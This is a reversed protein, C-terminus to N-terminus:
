RFLAAYASLLPEAYLAALLGGLALFSGFPLPTAADARRTGLLVVAYASASLIGAFLALLAPLFGLLAAIMALMKVDGLGMGERGRLARYAFRILLLLGAAAIVATVRGLILHEPGTLFVNGHDAAAAGPSTLQVHREPLLVQEEAPGLFVGRVAVLLLGAFIGSFTFADPLLHTQWDMVMLGILLFGALALAVAQLIAAPVSPPPTMDAYHAQNLTLYLRVAVAAFWLATAGEVAPYRWSIQGGCDRCRARLVIWSLVPLNDYWRIPELCRPCHSRPGAISRHHPLRSICVNLFSGLLLGLLLGAGAFAPLSTM